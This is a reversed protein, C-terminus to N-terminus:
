TVLITVKVEEPVVQVNGPRTLARTVFLNSSWSGM